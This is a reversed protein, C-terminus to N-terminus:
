PSSVLTIMLVKVWGQEGLVKSQKEHSKAFFFSAFFVFFANKAQKLGDKLKHRVAERGYLNLWMAARRM